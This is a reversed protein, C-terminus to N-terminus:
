KTIRIKTIHWLDCYECQYVRFKNKAVKKAEDESTYAIKRDCMSWKRNDVGNIKNNFFLKMKRM